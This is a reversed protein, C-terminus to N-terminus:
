WLNKGDIENVPLAKYDFDEFLRANIGVQQGIPQRTELDWKPTRSYTGCGCVGCHFHKNFDGYQVEGESSVLTFQEPAYYAWLVGRKSCFTCTCTTLQTPAESVEFRTRGCHCKAKISM